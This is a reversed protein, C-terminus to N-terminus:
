LNVRCIYDTVNKLTKLSDMSNELGSYQLLYGKGEEPSRGLEPISGLDGSNFASEKDASGCPFGLFVPTPLRERRWPIKRVWSDFQHKRCQLHITVLQPILAPPNNGASTDPFGKLSNVYLTKVYMMTNPRGSSWTFCIIHDKYKTLSITVIILHNARLWVALMLAPVSISKKQHSITKGKMSNIPNALFSYRLPKGNGEGTSLKKDSSKVMVRRDQTSRCPVAWLKM